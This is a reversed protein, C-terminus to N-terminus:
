SEYKTDDEYVLQADLVRALATSAIHVPDSLWSDGDSTQRDPFTIVGGNFDGTSDHWYFARRWLDSKAFYVEADHIRDPREHFQGSTARPNVFYGLWYEPGSSKLSVIRVGDVSEVADYWQARTIHNEFRDREFYISNVPPYTTCRFTKVVGKEFSPFPTSSRFIRGLCALTALYRLQDRSLWGILTM